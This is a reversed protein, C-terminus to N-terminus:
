IDSRQTDGYYRTDESPDLLFKLPQSAEDIARYYIFRRADPENRKSQAFSANWNIGLGNFLGLEHQGILQNSILSELYM